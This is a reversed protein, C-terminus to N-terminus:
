LSVYCETQQSSFWYQPRPHIVKISCWLQLLKHSGRFNADSHLVVLKHGAESMLVKSDILENDISPTVTMAVGVCTVTVGPGICTVTEWLTEGLSLLTFLALGQVVILRVKVTVQDVGIVTLWTFTM